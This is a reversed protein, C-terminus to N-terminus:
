ILNSLFKKVIENFKEPHEIHLCHSGDQIIQVKNQWLNPIQLSGFYEGNILKDKEGHMILVPVNSSEVVKRENKYNGQMVGNLLSVRGKGDTNRISNIVWEPATEASYFLGDLLIQMEQESIVEKFLLGASPHPLFMATTDMPVGMPPTGWIILGKIAPIDQFAQLAIHGGLSHGALIVSKLHMKEIFERVISAYAALNMDKDHHTTRFSAGHGPLDICIIRVLKSLESQLQHEFSRLSFSNGHIFLLNLKANGSENYHIAGNHLDLFSHTIM